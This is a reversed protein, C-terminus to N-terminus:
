ESVKVKQHTTNCQFLMCNQLKCPHFLLIFVRYECVTFCYISILLQESYHKDPKTQKEISFWTNCYYIEARQRLPFNESNSYTCNFNSCQEDIDNQFDLVFHKERGTTM